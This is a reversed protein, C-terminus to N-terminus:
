QVMVPMDEIDFKDSMIQKSNFAYFREWARTNANYSQWDQRIFHYQNM